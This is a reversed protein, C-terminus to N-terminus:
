IEEVGVRTPILNDRNFMKRSKEANGPDNELLEMIKQHQLDIIQHSEILNDKLDHNELILKMLAQEGQERSPLEYKQNIIKALKVSHTYYAAQYRLEDLRRAAQTNENKSAEGSDNAQFLFNQETFSSKTAPYESINYKPTINEGILTPFTSPLNKSLEEKYIRKFQTQEQPQDYSIRESCTQQANNM